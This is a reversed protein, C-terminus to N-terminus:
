TSSRSSAAASRGAPTDVGDGKVDVLAAGLPADAAAEIVVPTLYRARRSRGEPRALGGAAAVRREVRVPADFGDRRVGLYAMVRNGRPVAIM